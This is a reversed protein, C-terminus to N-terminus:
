DVTLDLWVDKFGDIVFYPKYQLILGIIEERNIISYGRIDGYTHMTVIGNQVLKKLHYSLTSPALNFNKLINKHKANVNKLLFLIIRLPIEQRLLSLIKKDATGIEGKIYYRTYGKEKVTSIVQNKELYIIHYEVHSIRMRLLDAIKSLHLGPNKSILDYIKKRTELELLDNM